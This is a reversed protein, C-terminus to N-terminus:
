RIVESLAKRVAATIRGDLGSTNSRISADIAHRFDGMHQVVQPSVPIARSIPQVTVLEPYRGEGVTINRPGTTVFQGGNAYGEQEGSGAPRTPAAGGVNYQALIAQMAQLHARLANEQNLYHARAEADEQAYQNRITAIRQNFAAETENQQKRYAAKADNLSEQEARRQDDLGRQYAIEAERKKDQLSRQLEYLQRSYNENEQSNSEDRTRAANSLDTDRKEKARRLGIADLNRAADLAEKGYNQNIEYVANQYDRAIDALKKGHSYSADEVGSQYDIEAKSIADLYTRQLEVRKEIGEAIIDQTKEIYNAWNAASKERYDNEADLISEGTKIQLDIMKAHYDAVDKLRKDQAEKQKKEDEKSKETEKVAAPAQVAAVFVESAAVNARANLDQLYQGIQDGKGKLAMEIAQPMGGLLTFFWKLAAGTITLVQSLANIGQTIFALADSVPIVKTIMAAFSDGLNKVSQELGTFAAITEEDGLRDAEDHLFKYSAALGAFLFVVTSIAQQMKEKMRALSQAQKETSDKTAKEAKKFENNTTTSYKAIVAENAALEADMKKLSAGISADLAKLRADFGKQNKDWESLDLVAKAGVENENTAM